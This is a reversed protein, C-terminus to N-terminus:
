AARLGELCAREVRKRLKKDYGKAYERALAQPDTTDLELDAAIQEPSFCEFVTRADEVSVDWREPEGGPKPRRLRTPFRVM